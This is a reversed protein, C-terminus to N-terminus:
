ARRLLKPTGLVNVQFPLLLVTGSIGTPTALMVVAFAAALAVLDVWGSVM